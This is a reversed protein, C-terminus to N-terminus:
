KLSVDGAVRNRYIELADGFTMKGRTANAHSEASTRELKELDDLRLKAVSLSDTKLSKRILKGRVKFRAFYVGSPVYRVLNAFQTKQWDSAALPTTQDSM